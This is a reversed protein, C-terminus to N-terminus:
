FQYNQFENKSGILLIIYTHVNFSTNVHCLCDNIRNAPLSYYREVLSRLLSLQIFSSILRFHLEPSNQATPAVSFFVEWSGYTHLTKLAFQMQM